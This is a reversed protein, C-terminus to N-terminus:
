NYYKSAGKLQRRAVIEALNKISLLKLDEFSVVFVLKVETFEQSIDYIEFSCRINDIGYVEQLEEEMEDTADKVTLRIDDFIVEFFSPELRETQQILCVEEDELSFPFKEDRMLCDFVLINKQRITNSIDQVYEFNSNIRLINTVDKSNVHVKGNENNLTLSIM